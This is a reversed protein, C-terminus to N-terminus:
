DFVSPEPFCRGDGGNSGVPLLMGESKHPFGLESICAATWSRREPVPHEM